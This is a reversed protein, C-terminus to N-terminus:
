WSANIESIDQYLIVMTEVHRKAFWEVFSAGYRIEGAAEAIPKGQEITLIKALDDIHELQLEYWRRLLQGRETGTMKRWTIFAEQAQDIVVKTLNVDCDSVEAVLEGNCPNIVEFTKGQNGDIFQGNVYSRTELLKPYNLDM